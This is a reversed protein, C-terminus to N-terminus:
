RSPEPPRNHHVVDIGIGPTMRHPLVGVPWWDAFFNPGYQAGIAVSRYKKVQLTTGTTTFEYQAGNVFTPFGPTNVMPHATAKGSHLAPITGTSDSPYAERTVLRITRASGASPLNTFRIIGTFHSPENISSLGTGFICSPILALLLFSLVATLAQRWRIGADATGPDKSRGRRAGIAPM